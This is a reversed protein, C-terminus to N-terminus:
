SLYMQPQCPLSGRLGGMATEQAKKRDKRYDAESGRLPGTSKTRVSLYM